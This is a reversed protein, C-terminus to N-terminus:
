RKAFAAIVVFVAFVVVTSVIVVVRITSTGTGIAIAIITGGTCCVTATVRAFIRSLNKM